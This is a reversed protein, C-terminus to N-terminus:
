EISIDHPGLISTFANSLLPEILKAGISSLHDDDIYVPKGKHVVLCDESPCLVEAPWLIQVNERQLDKMIKSVFQQRLEYEIKSPMFIIPRNFWISKALVKPTDWGIEPIGAVIVVNRDLDTIAKVTRQMSRQFVQRNEKASIEKSQADVLRVVAGTENGYFSGEASIAWRAVLVVTKINPETALVKLIADNYRPCRRDEDWTRVADLLPQCGHYTADLGTISLRSAIRDFTPLLAMAHSDGWIM